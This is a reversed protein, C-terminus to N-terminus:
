DVDENLSRWDAVAEVYGEPRYGCGNVLCGGFNDWAAALPFNGALPCGVGDARQDGSVHRGWVNRRLGVWGCPCRVVWTGRENCGRPCLHGALGGSARRQGWVVLESSRGDAVVGPGALRADMRRMLAGFSVQSQVPAESSGGGGLRMLVGSARVRKGPGRRRESRAGGRAVIVGGLVVDSDGSSVRGVGSGMSSVPSAGDVPSVPDHSEAVSPSAVVSLSQPEAVSPSAVVSRWSAVAQAVSSAVGEGVSPPPSGDTGVSSPRSHRPVVPPGSPESGKALLHLRRSLVSVHHRLRSVEAELAFVKEVSKSLVVGTQAVSAASFSSGSRKAMDGLLSFGYSSSSGRFISSRSLIIEFLPTLGLPFDASFLSKFSDRSLILSFSQVVGVIHGTVSPSFVPPQTQPTKGERLQSPFNWRGLV